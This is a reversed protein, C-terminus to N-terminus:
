QPKAFRPAYRRRIEFAAAEFYSEDPAERRAAALRDLAAEYRETEILAEVWRQHVAVYNVRFPRHEPATRMGHELLRVAAAYDGARAYELAWNNLGALLNSRAAPNTPDLRLSKLNAALAAAFRREALLDIGANYYFLAALGQPSLRRANDPPRDVEVRNPTRLWDRCTTEVVVEHGGESLIAFVHGPSEAASVALGCSEALCYFLVTAGVCNYPGGSIAGSLDTADARYEGRLVHAHLFELLADAQRRLDATELDAELQRGWADIEEQVREIQAEDRAGGAALGLALLWRADAQGERAARFLRDELPTYEIEVGPPAEHLTEAREPRDASPPAASAIAPPRLWLCVVALLLLIAARKSWQSSRGPRRGARLARRRRVDRRETRDLRGVDARLQLLREFM